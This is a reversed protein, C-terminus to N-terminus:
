KPEIPEPLPFHVKRPPVVRTVDAARGRYHSLVCVSVVALARAACAHLDSRRPRVPLKKSRTRSEISVTCPVAHALRRVPPGVVKGRGGAPLGREGVSYTSASM